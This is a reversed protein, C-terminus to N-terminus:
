LKCGVNPSLLTCHPGCVKVFSEIYSDVKKSILGTTLEHTVIKDRSLIAHLSVGKWLLDAFKNEVHINRLMGPLAAVTLISLGIYEQGQIGALTIVDM